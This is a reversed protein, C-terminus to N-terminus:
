FQIFIATTIINKSRKLFNLTLGQIDEKEKLLPIPKGKKWIIEIDKFYFEKQKEDPLAKWIAEKFSFSVAMYFHSNIEPLHELERRTYIRRIFREGYRKVVMEFREIDVIDIGTTIEM